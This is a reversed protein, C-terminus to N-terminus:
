MAEAGDSYGELAFDAPAKVKRHTALSDNPLRM